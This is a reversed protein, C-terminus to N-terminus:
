ISSITVSKVGLHYGFWTTSMPIASYTPIVVFVVHVMCRAGLV